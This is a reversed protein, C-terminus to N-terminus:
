TVEVLRLSSPLSALALALASSPSRTKSKNESLMLYQSAIQRHLWTPDIRFTSQRESFSTEKRRWADLRLRSSTQVYLRLFHTRHATGFQRRHLTLHIYDRCRVSTTRAGRRSAEDVDVIVVNGERNCPRVVRCYVLFRAVLLELHRM